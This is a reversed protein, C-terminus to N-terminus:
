SAKCEFSIAICNPDKFDRGLSIMGKHVLEIEERRLYHVTELMRVYTGNTSQDCLIFKGRRMAIAAHLRSIRSDDIALGAASSRGMSVEPSHPTLVRQVDRVQIVLTDTVPLRDFLGPMMCTLDDEQWVVEYVKIEATKGKVPATDVHRVKEQLSSSLDKITEETTLVQSGKALATVRAALNVADGFLDGQEEIIPGHHLGVRLKLQKWLEEPVVDVDNEVMEQLEIAAEVAANTDSFGSMVEDGITKIVTGQHRRIISEVHNLCELVLKRASEDGVREYLATSDCVDAFLVTRCNTSDRVIGTPYLGLITRYIVSPTSM